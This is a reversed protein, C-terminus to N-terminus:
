VKGKINRQRCSSGNGGGWVVIGVIRNGCRSGCHYMIKKEAEVAIDINPEVNYMTNQTRLRKPTSKFPTPIVSIRDILIDNEYHGKSGLSFKDYMVTGLTYYGGTRKVETIWGTGGHSCKGPSNDPLVDDRNGNKFAMTRIEFVKKRIPATTLQSQATERDRENKEFQVCRRKNSFEQLADANKQKAEKRVINEAKRARTSITGTVDVPGL